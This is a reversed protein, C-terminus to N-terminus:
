DSADPSSHGIAGRYPRFSAKVNVAVVMRNGQGHRDFDVTVDQGRLELELDGLDGPPHLVGAREHEPYALFDVHFNYGNSAELFLGVLKDSFARWSKRTFGTPLSNM